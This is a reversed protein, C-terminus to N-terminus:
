VSLCLSLSVSLCLSLGEPAIADLAYAATRIDLPLDHCVGEWGNGGLGNRFTFLQHPNSVRLSAIEQAFKWGYYDAVFQRYIAIDRDPAAQCLTTMNPVLPPLHGGFAQTARGSYRDDLWLQFASAIEAM